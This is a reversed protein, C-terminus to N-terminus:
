GWSIIKRKTLARGFYRVGETGDELLGAFDPAVSASVTAYCGLRPYFVYLAEDDANVFLDADAATIEDLSDFVLKERDVRFVSLLPGAVTIYGKESFKGFTQYIYIGKSDRFLNQKFYSIVKYNIIEKAGTFWNAERSIRINTFEERATSHAEGRAGEGYSPSPHNM